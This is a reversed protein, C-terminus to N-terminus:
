GGHQMEDLAKRAPFFNPDAELAKRFERAAEDRL